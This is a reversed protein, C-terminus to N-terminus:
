VPAPLEPFCGDKDISVMLAAAFVAAAPCALAGTGVHGHLKM